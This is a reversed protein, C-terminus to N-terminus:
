YAIAGTASNASSQWRRLKFEQLDTCVFGYRGLVALLLEWQTATVKTGAVACHANTISDLILKPTFLSDAFLIPPSNPLRNYGRHQWQAALYYLAFAVIARATIKGTLLPERDSYKLLTFLQNEAQQYPNGYDVYFNAYQWRHGQIGALQEIKIAKVEIIILGLLRDAILIDPEKRFNHAQSTKSFTRDRDFIPYRWYALCSRTEFAKKVSDWVIKEGKQGKSDLIETQIFENQNNM